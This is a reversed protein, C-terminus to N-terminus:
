KKIQRSGHIISLIVIRNEGIRYVIKYDSWFKERIDKRNLGSAMRGSMPFDAAQEIRGIIREVTLISYFHSDIDIFYAIDELDSIAEETWIIKSAM